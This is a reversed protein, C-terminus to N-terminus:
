EPVEPIELELNGGVEADLSDIDNLDQDLEDGSQNLEQIEGALPQQSMYYWYGIGALVVVVVLWIWKNKM